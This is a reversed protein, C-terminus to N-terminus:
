ASEELLSEAMEFVVSGGVEDLPDLSLLKELVDHALPINGARLSVFGLAKLSYLYLRIDGRPNKWHTSTSDLQRWDASFGSRASTQELVQYILERSQDFRGAYAYMKYLAIKIECQDPMRNMTTLLLRETRNWDSAIDIPENLLRQLDLSVLVDQQLPADSFLDRILM